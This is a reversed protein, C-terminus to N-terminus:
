TKQREFGWVEVRMIKFQNSSALGESDFTESVDSSGDEFDSRIWLGFQPGGVAFFEPRSCMFYKNKQSWHYFKDNPFLNFLFSEGTGYYKNKSDAKWAESCYAGFVYGAGDRIVLLTTQKNRLKSLFTVLSIGHGESSYLLTWNYDQLRAPLHPIVKKMVENNLIKSQHIMVPADSCNSNSLYPNMKSLLFEDKEANLVEIAVSKGTISYHVNDLSDVSQFKFRFNIINEEKIVDV